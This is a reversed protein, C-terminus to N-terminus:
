GQVRGVRGVSEGPDTWWELQGREGDGRGLSEGARPRRVVRWMVKWAWLIGLWVDERHYASVGAWSLDCALM